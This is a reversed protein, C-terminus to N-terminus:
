KQHDRREVWFTLSTVVISVDANVPLVLEQLGVKKNVFLLKNNNKIKDETCQRIVKCSKFEM